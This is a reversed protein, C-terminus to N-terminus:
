FYIVHVPKLSQFLGVLQGDYVHRNHFCTLIQPTVYLFTPVDYMYARKVHLWMETQAARLGHLHFM